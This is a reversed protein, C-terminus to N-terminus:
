EVYQSDRALSYLGEVKALGPETFFFFYRALLGAMRKLELAHGEVMTIWDETKM